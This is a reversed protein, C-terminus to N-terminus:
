KLDYQPVQFDDPGLLDIGCQQKEVWCLFAEIMAKGVFPRGHQPIIMDVDLKRIMAVWLRAVRNSAIYRRHFGRMYQEHAVFDQVPNADEVLSVGIDGSFLIKSIPDYIQLNGVSHMFHAPLIKLQCRGLRMLAGRDDVPIVREYTSLGKSTSLYGATLHPLFRSWLKSCVVKANTYLLWKDISAIIDPDQHSAFIYDLDQLPFIKSLSLSLPMYTLDGGPDLLMRQDNDIILFQNAQVGEGTVLGDYCLCRHSENEFLVIPQKQM